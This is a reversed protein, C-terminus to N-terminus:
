RPNRVASYSSRANFHHAWADLGVKGHDIWGVDGLEISGEYRPLIVRGYFQELFKNDDM